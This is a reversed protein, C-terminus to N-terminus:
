RYVVTVAQSFRYVVNMAVVFETYFASFSVYVKIVTIVIIRHIYCNVLICPLTNQSDVARFRCRLVFFLM